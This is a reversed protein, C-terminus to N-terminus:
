GWISMPDDPDDDEASTPKNETPPRKRSSPQRSNQQSQKDVALVKGADLEDEVEATSSMLKKRVEAARKAAAAKEAAAASYLNTANPDLHAGHVHMPEGPPHKPLQRAM